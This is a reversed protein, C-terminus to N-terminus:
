ALPQTPGVPRTAHLRLSIKDASRSESFTLLSQLMTMLAQLLEKDGTHLLFNCLRLAQLQQPSYTEVDGKPNPGRGAFVQDLICKGSLAVPCRDAAELVSLPEFLASLSVGLADAVRNLTRVTPAIRDNELRSLYSVALGASEAVERQSRRAELRISLIKKGVSM